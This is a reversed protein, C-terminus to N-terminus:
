VCEALEGCRLVGEQEGYVADLVALGGSQEVGAGSELRLLRNTMLDAYVM